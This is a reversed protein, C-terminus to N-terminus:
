PAGGDFSRPKSNDWCRAAGGDGVWLASVGGDSLVDCAVVPLECSITGSGGTCAVELPPGDGCATLFLVFLLLARM